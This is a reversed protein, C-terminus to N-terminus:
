QDMDGDLYRWERDQRVFRSTERLTALSGDERQFHAVFSVTGTADDRGGARTDLVELGLWATTDTTLSAPVTSPHWTRLLYEADRRVYATYRSRMLAEATM